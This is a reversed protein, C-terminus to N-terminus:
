IVKYKGLGELKVEGHHYEHEITTRTGDFNKLYDATAQLYYLWQLSGYSVGSRMTGKEFHNNKFTWKIGPTTPMQLKQMGGYLANFDLQEFHTFKEGNPAFKANYPIDERDEGLYIHRHFVNVLGGAITERHKERVDSHSEQFSYIHACSQDFHRYMSAAAIGPLSQHTNADEGFYRFFCEFSKEMAMVLPQVDLMNYKQLWCKMNKMKMPHNDLCLILYMYMYIYTDISM